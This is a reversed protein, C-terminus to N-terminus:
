SAAGLVGSQSAVDDATREFGPELELFRFRGVVHSPPPGAPSARRGPSRKIVLQPVTKSARLPLTSALTVLGKSPLATLPSSIQYLGPVVADVKSIAATSDGDHIGGSIIQNSHRARGYIKAQASRRDVGARVLHQRIEEGKRERIRRGETGGEPAM